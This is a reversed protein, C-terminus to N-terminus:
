RTGPPRPPLGQLYLWLAEIEADTMAGIAPWPMFRPDLQRAEPTRGTRLLNM